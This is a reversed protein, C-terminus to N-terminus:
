KINKFVFLFSKKFNFTIIFEIMDVFFIFYKKNDLNNRSLKIFYDKLWSFIRNNIIKQSKRDIKELLHKNKKYIKIQERYHLEVTSNQALGNYLKRYVSNIESCYGYKFEKSMRIRFDWDEWIKIKEDYLGIKKAYSKYFMENHFNKGSSVNFSRIFNEIFIQGEAPTDTTKSFIGQDNGNEDIFKHNSYVCGYEKHKIKKLETEIKRPFYYDDADLFTIIDEGCNKIATNRAKSIGYNNEHYITKIKRPYRSQYGKIIERSNDNSADDVIIIEAPQITQSLVSEISEAIYRSKNYSTIYVSVL